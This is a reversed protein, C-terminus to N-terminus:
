LRPASSPSSPLWVFAVKGEPFSSLSPALRYSLMRCATGTSQKAQQGGEGRSCNHGRTICEATAPTRRATSGKRSTARVTFIYTM